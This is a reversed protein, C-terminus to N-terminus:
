GASLVGNRRRTGRVGTVLRFGRRTLAQQLARDGNIWGLVQGTRPDRIEHQLSSRNGVPPEKPAQSM